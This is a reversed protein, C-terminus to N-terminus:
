ELIITNIIERLGKAVRTITSDKDHSVPTGDPPLIKLNGVVSQWDVDRLIIPVVPKQTQTKAKQLLAYCNDNAMFDASLLPLIIDAQEFQQDIEQQVVAGPSIHDTHWSQIVGERRLVSLGNNLDALLARDKEVPAHILFLNFTKHISPLHQPFLPKDQQQVPPTTTSAPGPRGPFRPPTAHRPREGKVGSILLQRATTEDKDALDIPVLPGLLGSPKYKDIKIPILPRKQSAPDKELMATWNPTLQPNNVYARSLIAICHKASKLANHRQLVANEGPLFDVVELITSFQEAELYYQVWEAWYRDKSDYSIYFDIGQRPSKATNTDTQPM